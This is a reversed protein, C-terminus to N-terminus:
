RHAAARPETLARVFGSTPRGDSGNTATFTWFESDDLDRRGLVLPTQNKGRNNQVEVVLNRDSALMMSDGDLAFIQGASGTYPQVELPTQDATSSLSLAASSVQTTLVPNLKKGIVGSGARLIVLHGPRDTLEEVRIQQVATGNCDSIFVLYSRAVTQEILTRPAGYTLCKGGYSRVYFKNNSPAQAAVSIAPALLCAAGLLWLGVRISKRLDWTKM